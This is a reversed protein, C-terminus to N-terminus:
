WADKFDIGHIGIARIEDLLPQITSDTPLGVTIWHSDTIRYRYRMDQAAELLMSVLDYVQQGRPKDLFGPAPEIVPFNVAQWAIVYDVKLETEEFAPCPIPACAYTDDPVPPDGRTSTSPAAVKPATRPATGPQATRLVHDPLDGNRRHAPDPIRSINSFELTLTGSFGADVLGANETILGERALSSKGMVQGVIGSSLTVTEITSFLAFEGPELEYSMEGRCDEPFKETTWHVTRTDDASHVMYQGKCYPALHLDYSAPQVSEPNWPEIGLHGMNRFNIIDIDSLHM